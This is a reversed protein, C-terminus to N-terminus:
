ISKKIISKVQMKAKQMRGVGNAASAMLKSNSKNMRSIMTGPTYGKKGFGTKAKYTGIKNGAM